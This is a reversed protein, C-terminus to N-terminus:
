TKYLLFYFMTNEVKQENIIKNDRGQILERNNFHFLYIRIKNYFWCLRVIRYRLSRLPKLIYNKNM